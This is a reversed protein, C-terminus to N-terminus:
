LGARSRLFHFPARQFPDVDRDRCEFPVHLMEKARCMRNTLRWPAPGLRRVAPEWVTYAPPDPLFLLGAPIPIYGDIEGQEYQQPFAFRFDKSLVGVITFSHGNLTVPRGIVAIHLVYDHEGPFTAMGIRWSMVM